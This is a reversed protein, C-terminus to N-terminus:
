KGQLRYIRQVLGTGFAQESRQEFCAPVKGDVFLEVGSSLNVPVVSLVLQDIQGAGILRLAVEAGGDCYIGQGEQGRLGEVLGVPDGGHFQVPTESSRDADRTVVYVRKDEHYPYGMSLVKEYTRRGVVVTDVSELFAAYGYDEGQIQMPNLFDLSGGPGAIFGDQSMAIYLTVRRSM